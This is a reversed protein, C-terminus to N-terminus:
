AHIVQGQRLMERVRDRWPARPFREAGAEALQRARYLFGGAAGITWALVKDDVLCGVQLRGKIFMIEEIAQVAASRVQVGDCLCAMDFAEERWLDLHWVLQLLTTRTLAAM